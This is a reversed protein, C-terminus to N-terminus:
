IQAIYVFAAVGVAIVVLFLILAIWGIARKNLVLQKITYNLIIPILILGYLAIVIGLILLIVGWLVHESIFSSACWITLSPGGIFLVAFLIIYLLAHRGMYTTVKREEPDKKLNNYIERTDAFKSLLFGIINLWRLAGM